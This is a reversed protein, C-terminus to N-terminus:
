PYMMTLASAIIPARRSNRSGTLFEDWEENTIDEELFVSSNPITIDYNSFSGIDINHQKRISPYEKGVFPPLDLGSTVKGFVHSYEISSDNAIDRNYWLRYGRNAKLITLYVETLPRNLNDRYQSIDFDDTYVIQAVEDGYITNAFALRTLNSHHKGDFKKFKRYYYDCEFGNVVKVFRSPVSGDAIEIDDLDNLRISFYYEKGKKNEDGVNVVSCRIEEGHSFKINVLDGISLNHKVASRFLAQKLGNIGYNTKYPISSGGIVSFPILPLGNGKGLLIQGDDYINKYPYTLCYDWNYELRQRYPNKKPTFNFLDKEPSLQVFECGENNNMCKNIFYGDISDGSVPIRLTTPNNFGFWGDKRKLGLSYAQSFSNITDYLYLPLRSVFSGTSYVYNNSLRPLYTVIENGDHNRIYDGISNFPDFNGLKENTEGDYVECIKKASSGRKQVSVNEKNRLLHNNFIDVGCHYNLEYEANSYETNRIAQIRGIYETSITGPLTLYDYNSLIQADNSGEKYVVETINNFLANSCIPYLTFIFRHKTSKDKEDNYIQITDVTDTLLENQFLSADRNLEVPIVNTNNVSTKSVHNNLLIKRM